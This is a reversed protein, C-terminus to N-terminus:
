GPGICVMFFQSGVLPEWSNILFIVRNNLDVKGQNLLGEVGKVDGNYALLLMQMTADLQEPVWLKDNKLKNIGKNYRKNPEL